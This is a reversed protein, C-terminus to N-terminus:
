FVNFQRHRRCFEKKWGFLSGDAQTCASKVNEPLLRSKILKVQASHPREQLDALEIHM